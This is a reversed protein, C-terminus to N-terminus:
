GTPETSSPTPEASATEEAPTPEEEVPTPTPTPTPEEEAPPEVGGEEPVDQQQDEQQGPERPDTGGSGGDGRGVGPVLTGSDSDTGGTLSAVPRGIALEFVVIVLVTAAFLAVSVLGIRKWPLRRLMQARSEGAADRELVETAQTGSEGVGVATDSDSRSRARRAALARTAAVRRRTVRMSHSYVAGGITICLSGLAAGLLTGATGLTSLVVAASVAGLAAGAANTWNIELREPESMGM